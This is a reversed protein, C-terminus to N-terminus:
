RLKTCVYASIDIELTTITAMFTNKPCTSLSFLEFELVVPDRLREFLQGTVPTFGIVRNQEVIETWLPCYHTLNPHNGNFVWIFPVM